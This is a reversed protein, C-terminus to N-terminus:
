RISKTVLVEDVWARFNSNEGKRVEIRFEAVNNWDFTEDVERQQVEDWYVGKEGFHKLPISIFSWGTGIKGFWSIDVRVVSKKKDSLEDDVLAVWAKEQGTAGKIWFQLAGSNIFQQLHLLKDQLCVSGGSFEDSVLEFRLATRGTKVVDTVTTVEAKPPYAYSFGRAIYQDDFFVGAISAKKLKKSRQEKAVVAEANSNKGEALTWLSSGLVMCTLVSIFLTTINLSNWGKGIRSSISNCSM